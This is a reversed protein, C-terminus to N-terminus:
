LYSQRGLCLIWCCFVSRLLMYFSCIWPCKRLKGDAWIERWFNILRTVLDALLINAQLVLVKYLAPKPKTWHHLPVVLPCFTGLFGCTRGRNGGLVSIEGAGPVWVLIVAMAKVKKTIPPSIPLSLFLLSCNRLCINSPKCCSFYSSALCLNHNTWNPLNAAVGWFLQVVRLHLRAKGKWVEQQEQMGGCM